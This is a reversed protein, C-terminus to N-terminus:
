ILNELITIDNEIEEVYNLGIKEIVRKIKVEFDQPFCMFIEPCREFIGEIDNFGLKKLTNINKEIIDMNSHIIKIIEEGYIEKMKELDVNFSKM